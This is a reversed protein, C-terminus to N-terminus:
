PMVALGRQGSRHCGQSKWGQPEGFARWSRGEAMGQAGRTARTWSSIGPSEQAGGDERFSGRDQGAAVRGVPIWPRRLAPGAVWELGRGLPGPPIEGGIKATQPPLHPPPLFPNNKFSLLILLSNLSYMKYCTIFVFAKGQNVAAFDCSIVSKYKHSCLTSQFLLFSRM